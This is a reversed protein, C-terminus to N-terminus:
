LIRSEEDIRFGLGTFDHISGTLRMRVDLTGTGDLCCLIRLRWFFLCM